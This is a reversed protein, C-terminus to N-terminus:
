LKYIKDNHRIRDDVLLGIEQGKKAMKIPKHNIQISNVTQKFDTTHGKIHIKDSIKLSGKLKCVAVNIKPFYHTAKAILKEKSTVIKKSIKIKSKKFLGQRIKRKKKKTNLFKLVKPLIM